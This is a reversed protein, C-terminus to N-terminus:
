YPLPPLERGTGTALLAVFRELELRSFIWHAGTPGDEGLQTAGAKRAAELLADPNLHTLLKDTRPGSNGM